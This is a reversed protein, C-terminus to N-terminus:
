RVFAVRRVLQTRDVTLRALYVGPPVRRGGEDTGDWHVRHEGAAQAAGPVFQRVRRGLADYLTLRVNAEHPLLYRLTASRYAPSPYIPAFELATRAADGVGASGNPHVIRHVEGTGSAYDVANLAYYVGGDPGQVYDSVQYYGRAWDRANPQGPTPPAKVWTGLSDRLRWIFGDYYDSFLYQGDYESPFGYRTNEVHRYVVGGIIAQACNLPNPYPCYEARSVKFAPAIMGSPAPPGCETTVFPVDGELYPWGFYLGGTDAINVEDYTQYGPDSIFLRGTPADITFRFPNRLGRAYVLRQNLNASGAYPNDAPVLLSKDPPGPGDPLRRVDLRLVVGNLKTTDIATCGSADDGLSVYLMSDPGFRLCGGNHLPYRNAIDRILERRSGPVIALNGSAGDSLSGTAELRSVRVTSDLATGYVYVYPKAPWRPDVALSLLGLEEGSADVSDVVGIPDVAALQGNVIMRLQGSKLECTLLRGDPLFALGVPWDLGSVLPQDQFDTPVQTQARVTAPWSAVALLLPLGVGFRRLLCRPIM